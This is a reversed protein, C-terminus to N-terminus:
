PTLRDERYRVVLSVTDGERYWVDVGAREALPRTQGIADEKTRCHFQPLGPVVRVEFSPESHTARAIVVDGDRPRNHTM